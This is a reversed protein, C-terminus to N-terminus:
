TLAVEFNFKGGIPRGSGRQADQAIEDRGREAWATRQSVELGEGSGSRGIIEPGSGGGEDISAAARRAAFMASQESSSM